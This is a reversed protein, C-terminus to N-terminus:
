LFLQLCVRYIYMGCIAACVNGCLFCIIVCFIETGKLALLMTLTVYILVNKNQIKYIYSSFMCFLDRSFITCHYCILVANVFVNPPSHPITAVM